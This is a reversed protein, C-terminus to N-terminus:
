AHADKPTLWSPQQIGGRQIGPNIMFRSPHPLIGAPPLSGRGALSALITNWFDLGELDFNAGQQAIYKLPTECREQIALFAVRRPSIFKSKLLQAACRIAIPENRNNGHLLSIVLEDQSLKDFDPEHINEASASHLPLTNKFHHCGRTIALQILNEINAFGLARVKHMLPSQHSTQHLSQNLTTM